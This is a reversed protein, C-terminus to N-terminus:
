FMVFIHFSVNNTSMGLLCGENISNYPHHGEENLKDEQVKVKKEKKKKKKKKPKMAKIQKEIIYKAQAANLKEAPPIHPFDPLVM